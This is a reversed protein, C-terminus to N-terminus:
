ALFEICSVISQEEALATESNPLGDWKYVWAYERASTGSACCLTANCPMKACFVQVRSSCLDHKWEKTHAQKSRVKSNNHSAQRGMPIM